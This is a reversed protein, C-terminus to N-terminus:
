SRIAAFLTWAVGSSAAFVLVTVILRSVKGFHALWTWGALWALQLIMDIAWMWIGDFPHIASHLVQKTLLTIAIGQTIGGVYLWADRCVDCHGAGLAAAVAVPLYSAVLVWIAAQKWTVCNHDEDM